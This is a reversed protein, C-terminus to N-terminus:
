LLAQLWRIDDCLKAQQTLLDTAGEPSVQALVRWGRTNNAGFEQHVVRQIARRRQRQMGERRMNFFYALIKQCRREVVRALRQCADLAIVLEDDSRKILRVDIASAQAIM